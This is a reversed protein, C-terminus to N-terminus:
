GYSYTFCMATLPVIAQRLMVAAIKVLAININVQLMALYHASLLLSRHLHKNGTTM